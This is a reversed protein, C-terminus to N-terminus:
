SAASSGPSPDPTRTPAAPAGGSRSSSAAARAEQRRAKDIQSFRFSLEYNGDVLRSTMPSCSKAFVRMMRVNRALVQATFGDIQRSRAYRMLKQLLQTGLGQGQFDDHIVFACEALNTSPELDYRAIGILRDLDSGHMDSPAVFAGIAMRQDYDLTVFHQVQKPALRKLPTGYRLYVTEDSHSHFFDRLAREDDPRLPRFLVRRGDKLASECVVESPYPRGSAPMALQSPLVYHRAKAADLLETRFSPHAISILALTRERVTRGYLNAVGYETVVYHVDGRSTVIGAGESLVPVIRSVADDEATSRIAIIPKGGRSRSAGRIFDAQGGIGSFFKHGVSDACVQGTLDVQLASNIAVMDDHRAIVFPDNVWDVGIFEFVPNDDVYDYLRRSGMCFSTVVKGQHITKRRGTVVGGDVLDVIGDSLMETHVGLDHKGALFPILAHPIEGIGLQLTAGDPILTAVNRAIEQSVPDPAPQPLELLPADCQVFADIESLHVFSDGHTRPMAVNVEALVVDAAAVASKVVDVSIGLSVYGARDPPSVTILAADVGLRGSRFLGPIESLFVPTYDALGAHVADRVNAGIFLANHRFRSPFRPDAYPAVGLTLIHLIEGEVVAENEALARVLNQPEACGSGIFVHDGSRVRQVAQAATM